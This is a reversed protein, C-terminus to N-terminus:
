CGLATMAQKMAKAGQDCADSMAKQSEPPLNGLKDWSSKMSDLATKMADRSAAPMKTCKGSDEVIQQYAICAAPIGSTAVQDPPIVPPPPPTVVPKDYSKMMEKTLASIQTSTLAMMCNSSESETKANTMCALVTDSWQDEECRKISAAIMSDLSTRMGLSNKSLANAVAAKCDGAALLEPADGLFWHGDIGVLRLKGTVKVQKGDRDGHATIKAKRESLDAKATCHRGAKEGKKIDDKDRSEDFDVKDLVLNKLALKTVASDLDERAQKKRRALREPDKNKEAKEGDCEVVANKIEDGAVLKELASGDSGSMAALASDVLAEKSSEGGSVVGGGGGLVVILVTALAGVGLIALVILLTKNNGGPARAPPPQGPYPAYAQPPPTPQPLYPQAPAGGPAYPSYAPPPTPMVVPQSTPEPPAVPFMRQCRDCGWGSADPIWRLPTGCVSCPPGNVM